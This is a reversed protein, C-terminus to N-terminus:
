MIWGGGLCLDDAPDYIACVQGPAPRLVPRDLM